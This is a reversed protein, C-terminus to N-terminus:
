HIKAERVATDSRTFLAMLSNKILGLLAVIPILAWDIVENFKSFGQAVWVIAPRFFRLGKFHAYALSLLITGISISFRLTDTIDVGALEELLLEIGINLVLLYAAQHLVPEKEVARSFLGAAFRM